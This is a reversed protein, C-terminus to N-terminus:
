KLTRLVLSFRLVFADNMCFRPGKHRDHSVIRRAVIMTVVGKPGQVVRDGSM